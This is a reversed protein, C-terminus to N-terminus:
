IRGFTAAAMLGLNDVLTQRYVGSRKMGILRPLLRRNRAAAFKELIKRNEPTLRFNLNQLSKINRDNWNKYRGRLMMRLRSARDTWGNSIGIENRDHQRYRLTPRPDYFVAGGCGSVVIYLWWDHIVVDALSATELLLKRAANNFAMTNGGAINQVLANAFSPPKTFLPSLGTENGDADIIRTRTCYLAPIDPPTKALRDVARALKDTEWIDDQDAWAFYGADDDAKQTLFLFNATYGQAPGEFIVLRDAGWRRRYTELIAKTDDRSDDDSALVRWNPYEQAEISDLQEALYREGNCTCLLITVTGPTHIGNM